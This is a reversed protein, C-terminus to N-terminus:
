AHILQICSAPFITRQSDAFVAIEIKFEIITVENIRLLLLLLLIFLYM